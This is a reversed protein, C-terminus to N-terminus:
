PHAVFVARSQILNGFRLALLRSGRELPESRRKSQALHELRCSICDFGPNIGRLLHRATRIVTCQSRWPRLEARLAPRGHDLGCARLARIASGVRM